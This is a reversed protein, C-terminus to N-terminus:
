TGRPLISGIEELLIRRATQTPLPRVVSFPRGKGPNHWLEVRDNLVEVRYCGHQQLWAAVEDYWDRM